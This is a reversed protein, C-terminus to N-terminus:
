SQINKNLDIENKLYTRKGKLIIIKKNQEFITAIKPATCVMQPCFAPWAVHLPFSVV